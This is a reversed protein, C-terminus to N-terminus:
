LNLELLHLSLENKAAKVPKKLDNMRCKETGLTGTAITDAM